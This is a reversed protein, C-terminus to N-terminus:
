KKPLTKKLGINQIIKDRGISYRPKSRLRIGCCPCCTGEWKLYVECFSCRKHGSEYRGVGKTTPKKVAHESCFGKCNMKPIINKKNHFKFLDIHLMTKKCM